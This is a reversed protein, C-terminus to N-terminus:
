RGTASRRATGLEVEVVEHAEVEDVELAPRHEEVEADHELRDGGHERPPAGELRASACAAGRSRSERAPGRAARPASTSTGPPARRRGGLDLGAAGPGPARAAEGRGRDPRALDDRPVFTARDGLVERLAPLTAPPSRRGAPSRRSRRCASARRRARSPSRTRAPTSRPSTTTPSTAPSRSTPCSARGAARAQGGARAAAAARRAGARGRAQAPRPARPRRGVAPLARAARLQERVM